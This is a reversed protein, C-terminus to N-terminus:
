GVLFPNAFIRSVPAQKGLKAVTAIAFEPANLVKRRPRNHGFRVYTMKSSQSPATSLDLAKKGWCLRVSRWRQLPGESTRIAINSFASVSREDHVEAMELAPQASFLDIQGHDPMSAAM